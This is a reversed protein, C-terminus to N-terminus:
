TGSSAPAVDYGGKLCVLYKNPGESASTFVDTLTVNNVIPDSTVIVKNDVIMSLEENEQRIVHQTTDAIGFSMLVDSQCRVYAKHQDIEITAFYYRGFTPFYVYNYELVSHDINDIIFVPNEVDINDYIDCNLELPRDLTKNLALPDDTVKYLKIQKAM